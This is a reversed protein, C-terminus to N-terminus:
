AIIELEALKEASPKTTASDWGRALFYEDLAAEVKERELVKGAAPGEPLPIDYFRKPFVHDAREEGERLNFLKQVNWIREGARIMEEPTIEWGTLTSYLKAMLTPGVKQLVPPRICIGLSNYLAVLDEAWKAMQAVKIDGAPETFVAAKVPEPMDLKEYTSRGLEFKETRYPEPNENYKLNEVPNRTRLHDGGRLNTLFGLTWTSWRGRPDFMPIEMGKVTMSYDQAGTILEGARATGEALLDGIGRRQTIDELLRLSGEVTGWTLEYGLDEKKLIGRQYLEMAFAVTAGASVLDIGLRQCVETAKVVVGLDEIDCQAGFAFVPTVELDKMKLGAFPGEKVEAWHACAINCAICGVGRKSYKPVQPRGRTEWWTPIVGTQFNRGPLAGFEHYPGTALMSGFKSFPGYFPSSLIAQRTENVVKIFERKQAVKVSGTGRIAIAKLNKSGMVAGLGTRAWADYYGNEISAFRVLNEGAPGILAVQLEPEQQEARLLDITDWCDKGWLHGAELLQVQQDKILLYVPNEAKGRIIIGDYGAFKLESGWYNGSNSTGFRGTLPSKASAEIRSATPINTGVMVGVNFVLINEPGLPDIGPKLERYLLEANFGLGSLYKRATQEDISKEVITSTSLDIDLLKGAYGRIEM